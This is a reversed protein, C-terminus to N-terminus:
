NKENAKWSKIRRDQFYDPGYSAEKWQAEYLKFSLFAITLYLLIM